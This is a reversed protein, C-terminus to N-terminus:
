RLFDLLTPQVVRAGSQLGAQLATEALQMNAILETMDADETQSILEAITTRAAETQNRTLELRQMRGGLQGHLDNLHTQADDIVALQDVITQTDNDSLADRLEILTRFIDAAGGQFLAYGNDNVTATAGPSVDVEFTDLNGVYAVASGDAAQEFPRTTVATGAFIYRGDHVTNALDLMRDLHSQVAAALAKRSAADQSGNSGQVALAKVQDFSTSMESLTADTATIFGIAKGINDLHKAAQQDEARYRLAIRASVPDDSVANIRKGSALQTQYTALRKLTRQNSALVSASLAANTVREM